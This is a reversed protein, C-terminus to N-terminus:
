APQGAIRALLGELAAREDPTLGSLLEADVESGILLLERARARGKETLEILYRRRDDVGRRRGAMGEEELRDVLGVMTTRDIGLLEGLQHQPLPGAEALAILVGYWRPRVGYPRLAEKLHQARRTAAVELLWGTGASERETM